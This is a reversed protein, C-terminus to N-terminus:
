TKESEEPIAMMELTINQDPGPGSDGMGHLTGWWANLAEWVERDVTVTYPDDYMWVDGMREAVYDEARDLTDHLSWGDDLPDSDSEHNTCQVVLATIPTAEEALQRQVEAHLEPQAKLAEVIKAAKDKIDAM